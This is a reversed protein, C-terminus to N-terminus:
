RSKASRRLAFLAVLSFAFSTGDGPSKASHIPIGAISFCGTTEEEGGLETRTLVGNSDADLINFEAQTLGADAAKAEAFSLEGDKDADLGSFLALIRNRLASIREPLPPTDLDDTSGDSDEGELDNTEGEAPAEGEELSEGEGEGEMEGEEEVEGEGESVAWEDSLYYGEIPAATNSAWEGDPALEGSAELSFSVDLTNGLAIIPEGTQKNNLFGRFPAMMEAEHGDYSIAIRVISEYVPGKDEVWLITSHGDPLVIEGPIGQPEDWFVWQTYWDYVGPVVDVVGNAQDVQAALFDEETLCGHNLYNGSNFTGNYYEAEMNVDYGPSTPFYGGENLWYGTIDDQDVDITVIVYYRGARGESERQTRGITGNAKFYAYLNEEDHTFKYEFIDVDPHNVYVPTYDPAYGDTDHTNGLPDFHSPISRWDSFEGDIVITHMPESSAGETVLCLISLSLWLIRTM